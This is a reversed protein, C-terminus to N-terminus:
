WTSLMLWHVDLYLCYILMTVIVSCQVSVCFRVEEDDRVCAQNGQYGSGACDSIFRQQCGLVSCCYAEVAFGCM